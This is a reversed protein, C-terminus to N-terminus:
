MLKVGGQLVYIGWLKIKVEVASEAPINGMKSRLITILIYIKLIYNLKSATELFTM